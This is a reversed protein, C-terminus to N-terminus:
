PKLMNNVPSTTRPYRPFKVHQMQGLQLDTQPNTNLDMGSDTVAATKDATAYEYPPPVPPGARRTNATLSHRLPCIYWSQYFRLGTPEITTVFLIDCRPGRVGFGYQNSWILQFRWVQIYCCSSLLEHVTKLTSISDYFKGTDQTHARCIGSIWTYFGREAVCVILSFNKIIQPARLDVQTVGPMRLLSDICGLVTTVPHLITLYQM